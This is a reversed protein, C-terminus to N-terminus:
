KSPRGKVPKQWQPLSSRYFYYTGCLQIHKPAVGRSIWNYVTKRDVSESAALDSVTMLDKPDFCIM